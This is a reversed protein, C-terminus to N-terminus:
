EAGVTLKLLTIIANAGFMIALGIIGWIMHQKGKTRTEENDAAAIFEVVGYIFFVVAVAFMLGILPNIIQAAIKGLLADVAKM